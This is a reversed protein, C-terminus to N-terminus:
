GLARLAVDKLREIDREGNCASALIIQALNRQLIAARKPTLATCSVWLHQWAADYATTLANLEDPGFFPSYERFPM